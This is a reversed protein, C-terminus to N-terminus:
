TEGAAQSVHTLGPRSAQPATRSHGQHGEATWRIPCALPVTKQDTVQAARIMPIGAERTRIRRKLRDYAKNAM